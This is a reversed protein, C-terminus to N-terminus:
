ASAEEAARIRKRLGYQVMPVCCAFLALETAATALAAGVGGFRPILVLNSGVNVLVLALTVAMQAKVMGLAVLMHTELYNVFTLLVSPALAVLVPISRGYGAGLAYVILPQLGLYPLAILGAMACLGAGILLRLTM